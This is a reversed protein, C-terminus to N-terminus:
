VVRALLRGRPSPLLCLAIGKCCATLWPGAPLCGVRPCSWCLPEGEVQLLQQARAPQRPGGVSARAGARGGVGVPLEGQVHLLGIDSLDSCNSRVQLLGIVVGLALRHHHLMVGLCPRVPLQECGMFSGRIGGVLGVVTLM